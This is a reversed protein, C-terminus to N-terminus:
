DASNEYQYPHRKNYYQAYDLDEKLGAERNPLNKTIRDGLDYVGTEHIVPLDEMVRDTLRMYAPGQDQWGCAEFLVNMLYCPSITPGTGTFDQGLTEKAADNAWILYETDYTNHFGEYTSLDLDIGNELYGSKSDGLSPNHDGYALVVVPAEDESLAQTLELLHTATDNVSGLYNNLIYYTELDGTDGTWFEDWWDLRDTSYPGHGQFTVEFSFYPKDPDRGQFRDLIDPFFENDYPVGGTLDQYRNELFWYSDFGLFKNINARNYFWDANPHAGTVEYGQSKLYRVYSGTNSRFNDLDYDGTLFSRETNITGGGFINVTLLGTLSNDELERWPAYAAPDIDQFGLRELDNFSELQIAIINVKQNAPLDTTPYANLIDAAAQDTYGAPKQPLASPISHVFPYVFGKSVFQETASWANADAYDLNTVASSNYLTDSTLPLWLLALALPGALLGALRAPWRLDGKELLGLLLAAALCGVLVLWLQPPFALHYDDGISLATPIATVDGAMFPDNRLTLKIWSGTGAAILPLATLVFGMWLRGFLCSFFVLLAAIPAWNLVFLLPHTFYGAFMAAPYTGTALALSFLTLIFSAALYLLGNFLGPHDKALRKRSNKEESPKESM